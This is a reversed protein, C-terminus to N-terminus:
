RCLLRRRLRRRRGLDSGSGAGVVVAWDAVWRYFGLVLIGAGEVVGAAPYVFEEIRVIISEDLSPEQCLM